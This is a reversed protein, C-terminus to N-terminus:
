GRVPSSPLETKEVLWARALSASRTAPRLVKSKSGCRSPSLGERRSERVLARISLRALCLFDLQAVHNRALTMKQCSATAAGHELLIARLVFPKRRVLFIPTRLRVEMDGYKEM